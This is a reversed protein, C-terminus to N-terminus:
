AEGVLGAFAFRCGCPFDLWPSIARSFHGHAITEVAHLHDDGGSCPSHTIIPIPIRIPPVSPPRTRKTRAVRSM